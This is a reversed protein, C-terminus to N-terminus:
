FNQANRVFTNGNRFYDFHILKKMLSINLIQYFFYYVFIM